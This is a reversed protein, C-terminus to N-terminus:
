KAVGSVVPLSFLQNLNAGVVLASVPKAPDSSTATLTGVFENSSQLITSFNSDQTLDFATQSYAGLNVSDQAVLNGGVDYLSITVTNSTNNLNALALGLDGGPSTVRALATFSSLPPAALAGVATNFNVPAPAAAGQFDFLVSDTVPGQSGIAFWNITLPLARLTEDDALVLMAAPGLTSPVSAVVNGSQDIRNITVINPSNTLNAVFLRTIWGGGFAGHPVVTQVAGPPIPSAAANTVNFTLANSVGGGPTPNSVTVPISSPSALYSAPVLATLETSSVFTTQLAVGNWLVSSSFLFNAGVVTLNVGASGPPRAAPSLLGIAPSPNPAGAGTLAVAQPSGPGNDTIMLSGALPGAATPNFMVVITCSAGVALSNSCTNNEVFDDTSSGISINNLAATGTNSLTVSQPASSTAVRQSGFSLTAPSLNAVPGPSVGQGTLTIAQISGPVNVAIYLSATVMGAQTPNFTVAVNCKAGPALSTPCASTAGFGSSAAIGTIEIPASGQNAIQVTQAASTTGAVQYGFSLATPSIVPLTATPSAGAGYLTLLKPSDTANDTITLSGFITTNSTPTFFVDIACSDGVALIAPCSNAQAFESPTTAISTISLPATGTNSLMVIQPNATSNVQQSLFDALVASLSTIPGSNPVGTGSVSISEPIDDINFLSNYPQAAKPAFSVSAMCGHPPSLFIPCNTAVVFVGSDPQFALPVYVDLFPFPGVDVLISPSTTGIPQNGFNFSPPPAPKTPDFGGGSLSITQPAGSTSDTINLSAFVPGTATPTFTVSITCTAGVALSSTCNNTQSFVPSSTSISSIADPSTGVNILNITSPSGVIGIPQSGFDLSPASVSLGGNYFGTGTLLVRDPGGSSNDSIAVFANFTGGATPTFAITITCSAGTALSAPCSNTQTFPSFTTAIASIALPLAGSNTLTVTQPPSTTGVRQDGFSLASPTLTVALGSGLGALAVTQAGGLGNDTITLSGNFSGSSSPVFSVNITCNASAALSSPCNNTQTFAPVSTAIGGITLAATGTNSLTVPLVASSGVNQSPFNLSTVSLTAIPGTGTGTLSVSQLNVSLAGTFSGTWPPSFTVNITCGTGPALSSVCNDSASFPPPTAANVMIPTLTLPATGVNALTISQTSNEEVLVNGFDLSTSSLMAQSIASVIAVTVTTQNFIAAGSPSVSVTATVTGPGSSKPNYLLGGLIIQDNVKFALNAPYTASVTNGSVTPVSLCNLCSPSSTPLLNASFTFNIVTGANVVGATTATLVINGLPESTQITTASTSGGFVQFNVPPGIVGTGVLSVVQPSNSANDTLTLSGNVVGAATPSFAFFIVCSQGAAIPDLCIGDSQIEFINSPSSVINTILLPSAGSNTVVLTLGPNSTTGVFQSPFNLPSSSFTVTQAQAPAAAAMLAFLFLSETLVIHRKMTLLAFSPDNWTDM